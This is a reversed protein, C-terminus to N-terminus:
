SAPSGVTATDREGAAKKLKELNIVEDPATAQGTEQNNEDTMM